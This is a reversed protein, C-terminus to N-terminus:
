EGKMAARIFKEYGAQWAELATVQKVLAGAVKEADELREDLAKMQWEVENGKEEEGRWVRVVTVADGSLGATIKLANGVCRHCAFQGKGRGVRDIRWCAPRLCMNCELM